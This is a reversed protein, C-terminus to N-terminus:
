LQTISSVYYQDDRVYGSGGLNGNTLILKGSWGITINEHADICCADVDITYLMTVWQWKRPFGMYM